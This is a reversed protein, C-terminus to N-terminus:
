IFMNNMVMSFIRMNILRDYLRERGGKGGGWKPITTMNQPRLGIKTMCMDKQYGIKSGCILVYWEFM